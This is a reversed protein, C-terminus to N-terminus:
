KKYEEKMTKLTRECKLIMENIEQVRCNGYIFEDKCKLNHEAMEMKEKRTKAQNKDDIIFVNKDTIEKEKLLANVNEARKYNVIMSIDSYAVEKKCNAGYM